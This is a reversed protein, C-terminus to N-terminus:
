SATLMLFALLMFQLIIIMFPVDYKKIAKKFIRLM